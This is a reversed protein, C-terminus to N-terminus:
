EIDGGLKATNEKAMKEMEEPTMQGKVEEKYLFPKKPYKKPDNVAYAIYKGLNYNAVDIEQAEREKREIYAEIYKEFKIPQM